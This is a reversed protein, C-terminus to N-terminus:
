NEFDIENEISSDFEENSFHSVGDLFIGFHLSTQVLKLTKFNMNLCLNMKLFKSDEFKPLDELMMNENDSPSFYQTM